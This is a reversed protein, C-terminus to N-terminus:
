TRTGCRARRDRPARTQCSRPWARGHSARWGPWWPSQSQSRNQRYGAKEGKGGKMSVTANCGTSLPGKGCHGPVLCRPLWCLSGKTTFIVVASPPFLSPVSVFWLPPTWPPMVLPSCMTNRTRGMHTGEKGSQRGYQDCRERPPPSHLNRELRRGGDTACLTRALITTTLDGELGLPSVVGTDYRAGYGDYLGHGRQNQGVGRQELEGSAGGQRGILRRKYVPANLLLADRCQHHLLSLSRDSDGARSRKAPPPLSGDRTALRTYSFLTPWKRQTM